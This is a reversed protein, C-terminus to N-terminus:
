EDPPEGAIQLFSLSHVVPRFGRQLPLFRRARGIDWKGITCCAYGAQRLPQTVLVERVDLGLTMEPSVAYEDESYQHGYDVLDLLPAGDTSYAQKDEVYDQASQQVIGAWNTTDM